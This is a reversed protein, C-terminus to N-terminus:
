RSQEPRELEEKRFFIKQTCGGASYVSVSFNPRGVVIKLRGSKVNPSTERYLISILIEPGM